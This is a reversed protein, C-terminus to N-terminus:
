GNKSHRKAMKEVKGEVYNKFNTGEKAAQISITRIAELSIDINKRKKLKEM